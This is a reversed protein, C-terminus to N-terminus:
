PMWGLVLAREAVDSPFRVYNGYIPDALYFFGDDSRVRSFDGGVSEVYKEWRECLQDVHWRQMMLREEGPRTWVEPPVEAHIVASIEDAKKQLIRYMKVERMIM